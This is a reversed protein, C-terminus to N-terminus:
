RASLTWRYGAAETTGDTVAAVVITAPGDLVVQTRNAGDLELRRVAGGGEIVQVVFRQPLPEEIRRFGEARWGAASEVGDSFGLEPVSIDDVAFGRAHSADDTVYEFRLLVKGGAFPTLDVTEALWQGGSDGSYGPGYAMGVPDYDSTNTAPLARWTEGGDTSATVYAYDWGRETEFWTHFRLTATTLGSLDFERTLRSDIDDGTNSWWFAQGSGAQGAPLGTSPTGDRPEIGISVEDAGDFRFISGAATPGVDLYDAAFQHVTGDSEGVGVATAGPPALDVGEHAYPGSAEDLYNAVVWDAFVDEFTTDFGRLYADVGAIGDGAEALLAAANERGGFRDLLYRFFLQSEQYHVGPGDVPWDNLQTDAEALFAATGDAGAGLLEAAVQSLGENVWSEEGSDAGRHVLHQLEHALVANYATATSALFSADLYVAERENSRTAAALPLSDASTVYGGAGSLRAHVISIRPDADVGPSPEKGFATTVRPYVADEFDRGTRQLTADSVQVGEEVLFYAHETIQRVTATITKLAPRDLDLITIEERDGVEYAYPTQRATRPANTPLGRFRVALDFLDRDPPEDTAPPAETPAPTPTPSPAATPTATPPKAAGDGCAAAGLFVLLAAIRIGNAARGM